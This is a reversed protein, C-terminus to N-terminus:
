STTESGQVVGLGSCNASTGGEDMGCQQCLHFLRRDDPEQISDMDAHGGQRAM